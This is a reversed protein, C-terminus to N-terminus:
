LLGRATAMAYAALLFGDTVQGGAILGALEAATVPRIEDLGEEVADATLRAGDIRGLYIEDQGLRGLPQLERATVGLEESLERAATAPGDEGPEPFGRPVEWVWDRAEHRFHRVLVIRGDALVPLVAAGPGDVAGVVRLYPGLSGDRFRVADRLVIFYSDEYVVGVDAYEAPLGRQRARGAWDEACALQTERDVVIEYAAGPPNAFLRPREARLRDYRDLRRERRQREDDHATM